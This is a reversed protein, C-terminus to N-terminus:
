GRARMAWWTTPAHASPIAANGPRPVSPASRCASSRSSRAPPPSRPRMAPPWRCGPATTSRDRASHQSGSGPGAPQVRPATRRRSSHRSSAERRAHGSARGARHDRGRATGRRLRRARRHPVHAAGPLARLRGSGRRERPDFGPHRTRRLERADGFRRLEPVPHRRRDVPDRGDCGVGHDVGAPDPVADARHRSLIWLREAGDPRHPLRAVGGGRVAVRRRDPRRRRNGRRDSGPDPRHPRSASLALRGSGARHRVNRRHGHGVDRSRDPQRGLGRQGVTSLWMRVREGLTASVHLRYGLYFGAALLLLGIVAMGVRGRAIAYMALFVCCLFLAPGLDKQFFFFLLAAAVGIIVPAVYDVRPLNIWSPLHLGRVTKRRVERLLEWRRAFYGALFLALLLRIAEIPQLPGLNVKASSSGPGNGFLILLVSLSLAGALPLYSFAGFGAASFEVLSLGGMLVVGAIITEAYRVFLLSDRLPDPRSLLVAFGIGTLLHATALLWDDRRRHRMRWMLALGHFALVYLATLVLVRNRVEARTRVAVYPKLAAIDSATFLPIAAVRAAADGGPRVEALRAAFTQLTRAERIADASVTARAVAGVNPLARAKAPDATLFRLLTRAAFRRDGPHDYVAVLAPELEAADRVTNLNVIAADPLPSGTSLARFRGTYALAIAVVALCSAATLTWGPAAHWGVRQRRRDRDAAVTYTITM